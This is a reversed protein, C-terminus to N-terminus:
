EDALARELSLILPPLSDQVTAWLIDLDIDFYDHILRNRMGVIDPWPVVGVASRTEPSVKRAAEGILTVLRVLADVLPDDEDELGARTRGACIRVAKRAADLMHQLRIRDSEPLM